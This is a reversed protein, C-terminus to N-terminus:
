RPEQFEGEAVLGVKFGRMDSFVIRGSADALPSLGRMRLRVIAGHKENFEREIIVNANNAIDFPQFRANDRLVDEIPSRIISQILRLAPNGDALKMTLDPSWLVYDFDDFMATGILHIWNNYFWSKVKVSVLITAGSGAIAVDEAKMAGLPTQITKESLSQHLQSRVEEFPFSAALAIKIVPDVSDRFQITPMEPIPSAEQDSPAIVPTATIGIGTRVRGERFHVPVAYLDSPQVRLVSGFPLPLPKALDKWLQAVELNPISANLQNEVKSAAAILHPQAYQGLPPPLEEATAFAKIHWEPTWSFVARIVASSQGKEEKIKWWNEWSWFLFEGRVKLEVLYHYNIVSTIVLTDPEVIHYNPKGCEVSYTAYFNSGIHERSKHIKTSELVETADNLIPELVPSQLTIGVSSAPVRPFTASDGPLQPRSYSCGSALFVIASTMGLAAMEVKTMMSM